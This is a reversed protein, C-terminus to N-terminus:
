EEEDASENSREAPRMDNDHRDNLFEAPDFELFFTQTNIFDTRKNAHIERGDVVKTYAVNFPLGIDDTDALSIKVASVHEEIPSGGIYLQKVIRDKGLFVIEVKQRNEDPPPPDEDESGWWLISTMMQMQFLHPEGSEPRSLPILGTIIKRITKSVAGPKEGQPKEETTEESAM